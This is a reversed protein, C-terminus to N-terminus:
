GRSMALRLLAREMMAMGPARSTSRLALDTEVLDGMASELAKQTWLNSQRQLAEQQRFNGRARPASGADASLAYLMRFHRLAGICLAVPQVGQGELRRVLAGIEAARREAVVQVLDGVEVEITMPALADVENATLPERDGLKYLAIKELLQRFDGPELTKSLAMVTEQAERDVKTLGTQRLAAEVEERSPPDDYLGISVALPHRDFVGKLTSKGTLGGATVVVQADGPRWEALMATFVATLTDGADEVLVVRQGPFFGIARMADSLLGPDKRLDGAAMRTLRMEATGDPGILAAVVEQRRLAVRMGDAGFVLLGAKAPDPRAFYRVAEAGKLIM